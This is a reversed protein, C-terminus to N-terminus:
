LTHGVPCLLFCFGDGPFFNLAKAELGAGGQSLTVRVLGRRERTVARRSDHAEWSGDEGGADKDRPRYAETMGEGGPDQLV